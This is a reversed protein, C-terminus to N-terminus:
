LLLFGFVIGRSHCCWKNLQDESAEYSCQFLTMSRIPAEESVDCMGIQGAISYGLWFLCQRWKNLQDEGTDLRMYQFLTLSRIPTVDCMGIQDAM